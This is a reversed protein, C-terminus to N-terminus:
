ALADRLAQHISVIQGPAAESLRKIGHDANIKQISALKGKDLLAQALNRLDNLSINPDMTNADMTIYGAAKTALATIIKSTTIIDEPAAHKIPIDEVLAPASVAITLRDIAAVLKDIDTM